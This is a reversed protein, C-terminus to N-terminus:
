AADAMRNLTSLLGDTLLSIFARENQERWSLRVARNSLTLKGYLPEGHAREAVIIIGRDGHHFEVSSADPVRERLTELAPATYITRLLGLITDRRKKVASM